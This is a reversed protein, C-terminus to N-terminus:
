LSLLGHTGGRQWNVQRCKNTREVVFPSVEAREDNRQKLSSPKSIGMPAAVLPMSFSILAAGIFSQVPWHGRSNSKVIM